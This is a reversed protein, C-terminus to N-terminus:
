WEVAIAPEKANRRDAEANIAAANAAAFKALLTAYAEGKPLKKGQRAAADRLWEKAVDRRIADIGKLRAGSPGGIAPPNGAMIAEWRRRYYAAEVADGYSEADPYDNPDVGLTDHTKRMADHDNSEFAERAAKAKGATADQCSQRVGYTLLYFVSGAPVDGLAITLGHDAVIVSEGAVAPANAKKAM